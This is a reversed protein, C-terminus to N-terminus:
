LHIKLCTKPTPLLLHRDKYCTISTTIFKAQQKKIRQKIRKHALVYSCDYKTQRDYLKISVQQTVIFCPIIYKYRKKRLFSTPFMQRKQGGPNQGRALVRPPVRPTGPYICILAFFIQQFLLFHTQLPRLIRSKVFSSVCLRRPYYTLLVCPPTPYKCGRPRMEDGEDEVAADKPKRLDQM